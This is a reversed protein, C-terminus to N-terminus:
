SLHSSQQYVKTRKASRYRGGTVEHGKLLRYTKLQNVSWNTLLGSWVILQKGNCNGKKRERERETKKKKM